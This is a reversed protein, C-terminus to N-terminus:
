MFTVSVGPLGVHGHAYIVLRSTYGMSHIISFQINTVSKVKVLVQLRLKIVVYHRLYYNEFM